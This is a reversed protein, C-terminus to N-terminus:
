LLLVPRSNRNSVTRSLPTSLALVQECTSEYGTHFRGPRNVFDRQHGGSIDIRLIGYAGVELFHDNRSSIVM